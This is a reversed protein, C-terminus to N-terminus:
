TKRNLVYLKINIQLFANSKVQIEKIFSMSISELNYDLYNNNILFLLCIYHLGKPIYMYFILEPLFVM